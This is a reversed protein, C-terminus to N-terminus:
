ARNRELASRIEDAVLDANIAAGATNGAAASVPVTAAPNVINGAAWVGPISTRGTPDVVTWAIGDADTTTDAGLQQLLNDAPVAAPRVFIADAPIATGDHLRLGTIEGDSSAVSAIRRTEVAIGRVVLAELDAEALATGEVFYTVHESLQRVLQAQHLSGAGSGTALVALRRDRVEWGDCYPCHAVGHGWHEALGPILPLEDRLGGAILLRRAMRVSGDALAVAFGDRTSEASVAQQSELVAGYRAIEERGIAILDLPSWGDRGLVGHMHAAVANRPAGGDLVLVHRRSRALMLAASLGASGAGVILVDTETTTM